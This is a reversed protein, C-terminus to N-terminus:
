GASSLLDPRGLRRLFRIAPDARDDPGPQWDAIAELAADRGLREDGYTVAVAVDPAIWARDDYPLSTQWFLTSVTAGLRSNPLTIPGNEGYHNPATGTPEGVFRAHTRQELAACLNMAASFTQRGTVVFLGGPRNIEDCRVLGDVLPANLAMNGGGNRRVDVILRRIGDREIVGFLQHFLDALPRGPDDRVADYRLHITPVPGPVRGFGNGRWAPKGEIGSLIPRDPRRQLRISVAPADPRVVTWDVFGPDRTVGVSHLVEPIVLLGPLRALVTFGNDRSVIPRLSEVVAGIPVGDIAIVRSGVFDAHDPTADTVWVGDDYVGIAVPLRGYDAIETLWLGTHGDGVAALLRAFAVPVAHAPLAPIRRRIGGVIDRFGDPSLTHHPRVHERLIAAALWDLDDRWDAPTLTDLM